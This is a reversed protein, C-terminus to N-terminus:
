RVEVETLFLKDGLGNSQSGPPGFLSRIVLQGETGKPLDVQFSHFGRDADVDQPKLHRSFLENRDGSNAEFEVSVTVGDPSPGDRRDNLNYAEPLVGFRGTAQTSGAPVPFRVEGAAHLALVEVGNVRKRRVPLLGRRVHIVPSRMMTYETRCYDLLAQKREAESMLFPGMRANRLMELHKTFHFPDTSLTDFRYTLEELSAGAWLEKEFEFTEAHRSRGYELGKWGNYGAGAFAVLLLLAQAAGALRIPRFLVWVIGAWCLFPCSVTVYRPALGAGKGFGSRGWGIAAVLLGLGLAAMLLGLARLREAPARVLKWALFGGLGLILGFVCVGSVPWLLEGIQGLSAALVEGSTVLAAAAGPCPTLHFARTYGVFCLGCLVLSLETCVVLVAARSTQSPQGSRWASAAMGVFWVSLTPVLALGNAGCLPLLLIALGLLAAQRKGLETGATAIGLLIGGFLGTSLIFQVQFSWLLNDVHGWNLLLLPYLADAWATRGRIRGTALIFAAALVGLALANLVNLSRFDGFARLFILTVLRPLPIRHENHQSWFWTLTAPEDGTLYPVLTWEEWIPVNSGVASVLWLAAVLVVLWVGWVFV